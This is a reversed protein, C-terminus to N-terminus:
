GAVVVLMEEWNLYKQAIKKLEEPTVANLKKLFENYYNLTMGHREVTLYREMLAFPGDASKLLQGISYNKVVELEELSIPESHLKDIEAKIASIAAESVEKGVETSIFFYGSALTQAVGSGIGYTYGKDERISTMLRSGFYGGLVTNLISFHIYDPHARNFLPRGIRIACQLADEKPVAVRNKKHEFSTANPVFLSGSLPTIKEILDDVMEYPVDGILAVRQIGKLVHSKHFQEIDQRKVNEYDELELTRGYLTDGFLGKKFAARALTSVKQQNTLYAKRKLQIQQEFENMPFVAGQMAEIVCNLLPIFNEVLGFISVTADEQTVETSVFGGLEDIANHIEQSSKSITGAFLLDFTLSAVLKNTTIAGANFQLDLKFAERAGEQIWFLSVNETIKRQLPPMLDLTTIAHLAPTQKRDLM